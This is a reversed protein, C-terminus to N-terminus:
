IDINLFCIRNEAIMQKSKEKIKLYDKNKEFDLSISFSYFIFPSTLYYSNDRYVFQHMYYSTCSFVLIHVLYWEYSIKNTFIFVNNIFKIKLKYIILLVSLYGMMSPVDNYLKWIGGKLGAFGTLIIGIM